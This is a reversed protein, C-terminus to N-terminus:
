AALAALRQVWAAFRPLRAMLTPLGILSLIAPGVTAKAYRKGFVDAIRRAPHTAEGGNIEEPALGEVSAILGHLARLDAPTDCLLELQAPEAFILSEFEHVHVYPVLRCDPHDAAMAAELATARAFPDAVGALQMLGPMDIPLRYLDLFTTLWIGRHRHQIWRNQIDRRIHKYTGGHGGRYVTRVARGGINRTEDHTTIRQARAAVGHAGLYPAILDRVFTEESHGEVIVYLDLM